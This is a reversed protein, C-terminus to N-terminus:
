SSQWDNLVVLATYIARRADLLEVTPHSVESVRDVAAAIASLEAKAQNIVGRADADILDVDVARSRGDDCRLSFPATDSRWTKSRGLTEKAEHGSFLLAGVSPASALWRRLRADKGRTNRGARSVSAVREVPSWEGAALGFADSISPEDTATISAAAGAFAQM